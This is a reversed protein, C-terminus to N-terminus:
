VQVVSVYLIQIKKCYQSRLQSLAASALILVDVILV